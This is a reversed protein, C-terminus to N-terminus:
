EVIEAVMSDISRTDVYFRPDPMLTPPPKVTVIITPAFASMTMSGVPVAVIPNNSASVTPALATMVMPASPVLLTGTGITPVQGTMTLSAAPPLVIMNNGVVIIPVQGTMVMSGAPLNIVQAGGTVVTPLQGTMVMSAYPPSVQMGTISAISMAPFPMTDFIDLEELGFINPVNATMVLSGAPVTINNSPSNAIITPVQGGMVLSGAPPRIASGLTPALGTMTLTAVPVSIVWGPFQFNAVAKANSVGARQAQAVVKVTM